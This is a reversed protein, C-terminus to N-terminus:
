QNSYNYSVIEDVIKQEEQKVEYLYNEYHKEKLKDLIKREKTANIFEERKQEVNIEAKKIILLQEEITKKIFLLYNNYNKLELVFIKDKSGKKYLDIVNNRKNELQFLKDKELKLLTIAHGLEEKKKNELSLKLNLLSEMSFKFKKM